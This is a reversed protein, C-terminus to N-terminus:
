RVKALQARTGIMRQVFLLTVVANLVLLVLTNFQLKQDSLPSTVRKRSKEGHGVGRSFGRQILTADGKNWPQHVVQM